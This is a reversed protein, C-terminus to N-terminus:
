SRHAVSAYYRARREECSVIPLPSSGPRKRNPNRNKATRSRPANNHNKAPVSEQNKPILNTASNVSNVVCDPAPPQSGPASESPREANPPRREASTVPSPNCSVSHQGPEACAKFDFDSDNESGWLAEDEARARERAEWALRRQHGAERDEEIAAEAERYMAAVQEPDWRPRSEDEESVYTAIDPNALFRPDDLFKARPEHSPMFTHDCGMESTPAQGWDTSGEYPLRPGILNGSGDVGIVPVAEATDPHTAPLLRAVAAPRPLTLAAVRCASTARSAIHPELQRNLLGHLIRTLMLQIASHDELLPVTIHGPRDLTFANRDFHQVCFDQGRLAAQRCQIGRVTLSRCRRITTLDPHDPDFPAPASSPESSPAPSPLPTPAASEAPSTAPQPSPTVLSPGPESAVPLASEVPGVPPDPSTTHSPTLAPEPAVTPQNPDPM